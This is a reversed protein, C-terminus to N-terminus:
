AGPRALAEGGQEGCMLGTIACDQGNLLPEHDPYIPPDGGGTGVESEAREIATYTIRWFTRHFGEVLRDFLCRHPMSWVGSLDVLAGDVQLLDSRADNGHVIAM